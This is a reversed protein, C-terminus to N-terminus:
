IYSTVISELVAIEPVAAGLMKVFDAFMVLCASSDNNNNNNNNNNINNTTDHNNHIWTINVTINMISM